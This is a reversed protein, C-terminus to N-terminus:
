GPPITALAPRRLSFRDRAIAPEAGLALDALAEGLLPGHGVRISHGSARGHQYTTGAAPPAGPTFTAACTGPGAISGRSPGNVTSSGM